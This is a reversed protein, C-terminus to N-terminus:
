ACVCAYEHVCMCMCVGSVCDCVCACACACACVCVCVCVCVWKCMYLICVIFITGQPEIFADYDVPRPYDYQREEDVTLM